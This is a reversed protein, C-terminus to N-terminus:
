EVLIFRNKASVFSQLKIQYKKILHISFLFRYNQFSLEQIKIKKKKLLIKIIEM